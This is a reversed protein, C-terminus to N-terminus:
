VHIMHIHPFYIQADAMLWVHECIIEFMIIYTNHLYKCVNVMILAGSGAIEDKFVERSINSMLRVSKM